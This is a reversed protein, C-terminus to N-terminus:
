MCHVGCQLTSRDALRSDLMNWRNNQGLKLQAGGGGEARSGGSTPRCTYARGALGHLGSQTTWRGRNTSDTKEM